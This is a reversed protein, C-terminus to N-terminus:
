KVGKLIITFIFGLGSLGISVALGWLAKILGDLKQCVNDITVDQKADNIELKTIKEGHEDLIEDHNKLRADITKHKEICESM